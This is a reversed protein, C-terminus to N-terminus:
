RCHQPGGSGRGQRCQIIGDVVRSKAVASRGSEVRGQRDHSVVLGTLFSEPSARPVAADESLQDRRDMLGAGGDAADVM